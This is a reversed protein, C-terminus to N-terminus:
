GNRPADNEERSDDGSAAAVEGSAIDESARLVGTLVYRVQGHEDAGEGFPGLLDVHLVWADHVSKRKHREGRAAGALCASCDRRFDVHGERLACCRDSCWAELVSLTERKLIGKLGPAWVSWSASPWSSPVGQSVAAAKSPVGHGPGSVISM